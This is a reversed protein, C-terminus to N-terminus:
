CLVPCGRENPLTDIAVNIGLKVCRITFRMLSSFTAESIQGGYCPLAIHVKSDKLVRSVTPQKM